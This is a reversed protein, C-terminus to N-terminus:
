LSLLFNAVKICTNGHNRRNQMKNQLLKAKKVLDERSKETTKRAERAQELDRLLREESLGFTFDNICFPFTKSKNTGNQFTVNQFTVCYITAQYCDQEVM